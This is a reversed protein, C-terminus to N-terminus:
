PAIGYTNADNDIDDLTLELLAKWPQPQGGSPPLQHSGIPMGYAYTTVTRTGDPKQALDYWYDIIQNEGLRAPPPGDGVSILPDDPENTQKTEAM